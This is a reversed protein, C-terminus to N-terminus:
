PAIWRHSAPPSNLGHCHGLTPHPPGKGSEGAQATFPGSRGLPTARGEPPFGGLSPPLCGLQAGSCDEPLPWGALRPARSRTRGRRGLPVLAARRRPHREEATSNIVAELMLQGGSDSLSALAPESARGGAQWRSHHLAGGGQELPQGAVALCPGEVSSAGRLSGRLLPPCLDSPLRGAKGSLRPGNGTESRGGSGKRRRRAAAQGDTGEEGRKCLDAKSTTWGHPRPNSGGQPGTAPLGEPGLGGEWPPPPISNPFLDM